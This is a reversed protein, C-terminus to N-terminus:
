GMDWELRQIVWQGDVRLLDLFLGTRWRVSSVFTAYVSATDNDVSIVPDYLTGQYLNGNLEERCMPRVVLDRSDIDRWYGPLLDRLRSKSVMLHSSFHYRGHDSLCGLLGDLDRSNKANQYRLLLAKIEAETGTRPHYKTLPTGSFLGLATTLVCAAVVVIIATREKPSAAM